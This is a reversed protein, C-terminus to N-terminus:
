LDYRNHAAAWQVFGVNENAIEEKALTLSVFIEIASVFQQLTQVSRTTLAERGATPELINFDAVGGFRYMSSASSTALAFQTRFGKIHVMNQKLIASGVIPTGGFKADTLKVWVENASCRLQVKGSLTGHIIGDHDFEFVPKEPCRVAADFPVMSVLRDNVYVPIQVHQVFSAVYEIAEHINLGFGSVSSATVTTGPKGRADSKTIVICDEVASLKSKEASSQIFGGGDMNETEVTMADAIGFNAMAGIGFTGVVGAARAADNNKGSAGARWYNRKIEDASMGIGNDSVVIRHQDISIRIEPEFASDAYRRQLIADYANQCNERLLALPSQYIQNALLQVIRQIDVHFPISETTTM